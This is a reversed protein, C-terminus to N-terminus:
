KEEDEENEEKRRGELREEVDERELKRVSM